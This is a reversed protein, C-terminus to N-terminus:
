RIALQDDRAALVVRQFHPVRPGALQKRAHEVHAVADAAHSERGVSLYERGCGHIAKGFQPVHGLNEVRTHLAGWFGVVFVFQCREPSM